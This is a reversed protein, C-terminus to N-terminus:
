QEVEEFVPSECSFEGSFVYKREMQPRLHRYKLPRRIISTYPADPIHYEEKMGDLTRLLIKM